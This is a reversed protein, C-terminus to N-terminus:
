DLGDPSGPPQRDEPTTRTDKPISQPCLRCAYLGGADQSGLDLPVCPRGGTGPLPEGPVAHHPQREGGPVHQGHPPNGPRM